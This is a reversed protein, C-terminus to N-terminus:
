KLISMVKLIMTLNFNQIKKRANSTKKSCRLRIRSNLLLLLFLSIIPYINNVCFGCMLLSNALSFLGFMVFSPLEFVHQLQYM